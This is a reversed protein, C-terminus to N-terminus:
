WRRRLYKRLKIKRALTKIEAIANIIENRKVMLTIDNVLEVPIRTAGWESWVEVVDKGVVIYKRKVGTVGLYVGWDKVYIEPQEHQEFRARIESADCWRVIILDGKELEELKTQKMM